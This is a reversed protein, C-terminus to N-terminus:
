KTTLALLRLVGRTKQFRELTSWEEYLKNFLDPHIPYASTMLDKYRTSRTDEPFDAKEVSYMDCYSRIVADRSTGDEKNQIPEFLRRRVIEYSEPGSAPRWQKAIRTVVNKLGDCAKEGDSGGIENISQPVSILLLSIISTASANPSISYM